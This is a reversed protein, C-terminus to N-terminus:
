IDAELFYRKVARAFCRGLEVLKAGSVRDDETGFYASELSFALRCDPRSNTTYAFNASPQNWATLPPFDNARSYKMSSETIESELLASFEDFRQAKECMNRVVFIRDNVGGKHWPSHLDFGLKCGHKERYECIARVEPYLPEDTYDRNHDHPYRSKGQDGDLVGDFDVFPVFLTRANKIPSSALEEIIGEMVYSGTSECAHHRACFIISREGEGITLCPVSRGKRSKCLEDTQLGLRRCLELFRAPHYLMHHAFYVRSEDEGFRYVFSNGECEGLWHWECLDYSVAPGFYGLRNQGLEFCLERGEAGEVCFAWYFWDGVTDRLENQLLIRDGCIESVRINGGIFDGHIRIM